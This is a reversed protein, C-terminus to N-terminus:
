RANAPVGKSNVFPAEAFAMYVFTGGSETGIDSTKLKFGNSLFDVYGNGDGGEADTTDAKLFDDVANIPSRKNDFIYWNVSGSSNTKKIM